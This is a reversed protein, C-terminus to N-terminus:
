RTEVRDHRVDGHMKEIIHPAPRHKSLHVANHPWLAQKQEVDISQFVPGEAGLTFWGHPVERGIVDQLRIPFRHMKEGGRIQTFQQRAPSLHMQLQDLDGRARRAFWELTDPTAHCVRSGPSPNYQYANYDRVSAFNPSSDMEGCSGTLLLPS